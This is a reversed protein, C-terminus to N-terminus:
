THKGYTLGCYPCFLVEQETEVFKQEIYIMKIFLLKKSQENHICASRADIDTCVANMLLAGDEIAKKSVIKM